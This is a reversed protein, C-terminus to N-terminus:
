ALVHPFANRRGEKHFSARGAFGPNNRYGRSLFSSSGGISSCPCPSPPALPSLLFPTLCPLLPLSVLLPFAFPLNVRQSCRGPLIPSPSVQQLWVTGAATYGWIYVIGRGLSREGQLHLGLLPYCHCCSIFNLSLGKGPPSISTNRVQGKVGLPEPTPM